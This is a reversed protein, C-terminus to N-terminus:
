QLSKCDAGYVRLPDLGAVCFEVNDGIIGAYGMDGEILFWIPRSRNDTMNAYARCYHREVLNKETRPEYRTQQIASFDAIALGTHLLNDDAYDFRSVIRSLVRHENCISATTPAVIYDAARAPQLCIATLCLALLTSASKKM